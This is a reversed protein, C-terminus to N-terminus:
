RGPPWARKVEALLGPDLQSWFAASRLLALEIEALMGRQLIRTYEAMGQGADNFPKGGVGLMRRHVAADVRRRLEPLAEEPVKGDPGAMSLISRGIDRALGEFLGDLADETELLVGRFAAKDSRAMM